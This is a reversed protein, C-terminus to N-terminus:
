NNERPGKRRSMKKKEENTGELAEAARGTDSPPSPETGTFCVGCLYVCVSKREWKCTVTCVLVSIQAGVGERGGGTADSHLHSPKLGVHSGYPPSSPYQFSFRGHSSKLSVRAKPSYVGVEQKITFGNTHELVWNSVSYQLRESHCPGDGYTAIKVALTLLLTSCHHPLSCKPLCPISYWSTSNGCVACCFSVSSPRVM